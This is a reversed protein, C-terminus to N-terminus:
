VDRKRGCLAVEVGVFIVRVENGVDIGQDIVVSIVKRVFIGVGTGEVAIVVDIM